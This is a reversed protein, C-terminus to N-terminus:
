TCEHRIFRPGYGRMAMANPTEYNSGTASHIGVKAGSSYYKNASAAFLVFCASTCISTNGVLVDLQEQKIIAALSRSAVISGGPAHLVLTHKEKRPLTVLLSLLRDSDGPQIEGTAFIAVFANDLRKEIFEMAYAPRTLVSGAITACWFWGPVIKRVPSAIAPGVNQNRIEFLM